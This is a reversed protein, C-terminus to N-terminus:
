DRTGLERAGVDQEPGIDRTRPREDAVVQREGWALPQDEPETARLQGQVHSLPPACSGGGAAERVRVRAVRDVREELHALLPAPLPHAVGVHLDDARELVAELAPALHAREDGALAGDEM